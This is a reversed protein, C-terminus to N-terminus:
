PATGGAISRRWAADTVVKAAIAHSGANGATAANDDPAGGTSLASSCSEGARGTSCAKAVLDAFMRHWGPAPTLEPHFATVLFKGSRAAVIVRPPEAASAETAAGAAAGSAVATGVSTSCSARTEGPLEPVNADHRAYRVWALAEAEPGLSLIAPARIFVGTAPADVGGAAAAEALELPAQFSTVQSGFYNRHVEIDMGGLLAQGGQLRRQHQTGM